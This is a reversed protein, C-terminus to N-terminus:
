VAEFEFIRQEMHQSVLQIAVSDGTGGAGRVQVACSDGPMGLVRVTVFRREGSQSGMEVEFETRGGIPGAGDDTDIVVTPGSPKLSFGIREFPRTTYQLPGTRQL